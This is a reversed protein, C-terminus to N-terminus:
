APLVTEVVTPVVWGLRSKSWADMLPPYRQSGDFGWSNGLLSFSGLGQGYGPGDVDYLDPLGTTDTPIVTLKAQTKLPYHTEYQTCFFLRDIEVDVNRCKQFSLM